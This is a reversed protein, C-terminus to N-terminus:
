NLKLWSIWSYSKKVTAAGNGAALSLSGLVGIQEPAAVTVVSQLLESYEDGAQHKTLIVPNVPSLDGHCFQAEIGQVSANTSANSVNIGAVIWYTGADLSSTQFNTAGMAILTPTVTLDYDAPATNFFIFGNTIYSPGAPGAPGTAGTPGVQGFSYSKTDYHLNLNTNVGPVETVSDLTWTKGNSIWQMISPAGLPEISGGSVDGWLKVGTGTLSRMSQVSAGQVVNSATINNTAMLSGAEGLISKPGIVVGSGGQVALDSLLRVPYRPDAYTTSNTATRQLIPGDSDIEVQLGTGAPPRWFSLAVPDSNSWEPYNGDWDVVDVANTINRSGSWRNGFLFVNTVNTGLEYGSMFRNNMMTLGTVDQIRVQSPAVGEYFGNGIITLGQNNNTGGTSFIANTCNEFYNGVILLDWSGIGPWYIGNGFEFRNGPGIQSASLGGGGPVIEAFEIAAGGNYQLNSNQVKCSGGGMLKIGSSDSIGAVGGEIQCDDILPYSTDSVIAHNAYDYVRVDRITSVNVHHIYIGNASNTSWSFKVPNCDLSMGQLTLSFVAGSPYNTIPPNQNNVIIMWGNTPSDWFLRTAEKGGGEISMVPYTGKVILPHTIRFQGPPFSIRAIKNTDLSAANIAAQLSATDDTVADGVAGYWRVDRNDIMQYSYAPGDTVSNTGSARWRAAGIPSPVPLGWCTVSGTVLCFLIITKMVLQQSATEM